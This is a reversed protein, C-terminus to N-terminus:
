LFDNQNKSAPVRVVNKVLEATVTERHKMRFMERDSKAFCDRYPFPLM